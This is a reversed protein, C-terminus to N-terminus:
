RTLATALRDLEDRYAPLQVRERAAPITLWASADHEESLTPELPAEEPWQAWFSRKRYWVGDLGEFTQEPPLEEFPVEAIRCGTEESVERRAAATLSSDGPEVKGSVGQWFRGREKVRRLMLVEPGSQGPRILWVEVLLRPADRSGDGLDTVHM